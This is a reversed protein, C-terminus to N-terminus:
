SCVRRGSFMPLEARGRQPVDREGRGIHVISAERDKRGDDIVIGGSALEIVRVLRSVKRFDSV